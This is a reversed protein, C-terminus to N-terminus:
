FDDLPADFDDIQEEIAREEESTTFATANAVLYSAVGGVVVCAGVLGWKKKPETLKRLAYIIGGLSALGLIGGVAQIIMWTEM